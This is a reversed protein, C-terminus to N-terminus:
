QSPWIFLCGENIDEKYNEIFDKNFQSTNEVWKFGYVPLKQPM